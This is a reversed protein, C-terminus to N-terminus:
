GLLHWYRIWSYACAIHAQGTEHFSPLLRPLFVWTTLTLIQANALVSGEGLIAVFGIVGLRLANLTIRGEGEPQLWHMSGSSSFPSSDSDTFITLNSEFGLIQLFAALTNLSVVALM